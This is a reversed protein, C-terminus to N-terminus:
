KVLDKIKENVDFTHAVVKIEDSENNQNSEVNQSKKLERLKLIREKENEFNLSTTEIEQNSEDIIETKEDFNEIKQEFNKTKENEESIEINNEEQNQEPKNENKKLIKEGSVILIDYGPYDAMNINNSNFGYGNTAYGNLAGYGGYMGYGGYLGNGYGGYGYGPAFRNYGYPMGTFGNGVNRMFPGYTDINRTLAVHKKEQKNSTTTQAEGESQQETQSNECNDCVLNELSNLTNIINQYYALRANSNNSLQTLKANIKDQNREPNKKMSSISKLSSEYESKSYSITNSYKALNASLDAIASMQARTYKKNKSLNSKIKSTQSLIDSKFLEECALMDKSFELNDKMDDNSIKELTEASISLDTPNARQINSITNATEDLQNSLKNITADTKNTGCAALVFVMSSIGIGLLIKKM